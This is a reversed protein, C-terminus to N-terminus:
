PKHNAQLAGGGHYFRPNTLLSDVFEWINQSIPSTDYPWYVADPNESFPRMVLYSHSGIDFFPLDGDEVLGADVDFSPDTRLFLSALREPDVIINLDYEAWDGNRSLQIRGHGLLGYFRKLEPPLKIGTTTEFQDIRSDSVEWFATRNDGTDDTRKYAALENLLDNNM